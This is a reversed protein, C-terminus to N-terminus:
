LVRPLIKTKIEAMLSCWLSFFRVLILSPYEPFVSIKYTAVNVKSQSDSTSSKLLLSSMLSVVQIGECFSKPSLEDFLPTGFYLHNQFHHDIHQLYSLRKEPECQCVEVLVMWQM